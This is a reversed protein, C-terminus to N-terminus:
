LKKELSYSSNQDTQTIMDIGCIENYLIAQSTQTQISNTNTLNENYSSSFYLDDTQCSSAVGCFDLNTQAMFDNSTTYQTNSQYCNTNQDSPQEDIGSFYVEQDLDSFELNLDVTESSSIDGQNLYSSLSTQTCATNLVINSTQIERNTHLSENM